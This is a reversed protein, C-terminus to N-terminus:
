VGAVTGGAVAEGAAATAGAVGEGLVPGTVLGVVRIVVGLVLMTGVVRGIAIRDVGDLSVCVVTVGDVVGATATVFLVNLLLLGCAVGTDTEEM